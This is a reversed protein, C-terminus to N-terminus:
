KILRNNGKQFNTNIAKRTFIRVYNGMIKLISSSFYWLKPKLLRIQISFASSVPSLVLGRHLIGRINKCKLLLTITLEVLERCKPKNWLGSGTSKHYSHFKNNALIIRVAQDGSTRIPLRSIMERVQDM